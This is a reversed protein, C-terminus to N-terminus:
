DSEVKQSFQSELNEIQINWYNEKSDEFSSNSLGLEIPNPSAPFYNPLLAEHVRNIHLPSGHVGIKAGFLVVHSRKDAKLGTLYEIRNEHDKKMKILREVPYQGRTKKNDIRRHHTDCMLMLNSFHKELKPSLIADYRASDEAYGYIHAIYSRNMEKYDLDDRWLPINCGEYQCRGGSALWLKTKVDTPIAPRRKKTKSM